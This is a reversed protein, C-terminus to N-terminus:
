YSRDTHGSNYVCGRGGAGLVGIEVPAAARALPFQLRGVVCPSLLRGRLVPQLRSVVCLTRALVVDLALLALNLREPLTLRLACRRSRPM